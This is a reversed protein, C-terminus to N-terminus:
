LLGIWPSATHTEEVTFFGQDGTHGTISGDGHANGFGKGPLTGLQREGILTIPQFAPHFVDGGAAVVALQHQRQIDGIVCLNGVDHLFDLLLPAPDIDDDMGDAERRALLQLPTVKVRHRTFAKRDRM